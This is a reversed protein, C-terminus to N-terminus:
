EYPSGTRLAVPLVEFEYTTTQGQKLNSEGTKIPKIYQADIVESRPLVNVSCDFPLGTPAVYIGGPGDPDWIKLKTLTVEMTYIGPVRNPVTFYWWEASPEPSSYKEGFVDVRLWREGGAYQRGPRAEFGVDQPWPVFTTYLSKRPTAWTVDVPKWSGDSFLKAASTSGASIGVRPTTWGNVAVKLGNVKQANAQRVATLKADSAARTTPGVCDYLRWTVEATLPSCDVTVADTVENVAASPTPTAVRRSTWGSGRRYETAVDLNVNTKIWGATRWGDTRQVSSKTSSELKLSPNLVLPGAVIRPGFQGDYWTTREAGDYTFWIQGGLSGKTAVRFLEVSSKTAGAARSITMAFSPSLSVERTADRRIGNFLITPEKLTLTGGQGTADGAKTWTLQTGRVAPTLSGIKTQDFPLKLDFKLTRFAETLAAQTTTVKTNGGTYTVATAKRLAGQGATSIIITGVKIDTRRGSLTLSTADQGIIGRSVTGDQVWVTGPEFQWTVGDMTQTKPPQEGGGGGGGGGDDPPKIADGGSGCGVLALAAILAGVWVGSRWQCGISIRM